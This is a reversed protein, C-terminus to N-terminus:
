DAVQTRVVSGVEKDHEVANLVSQDLWKAALPGSWFKKSRSLYNRNGLKLLQKFWGVLM